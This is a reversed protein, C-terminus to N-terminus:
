LCSHAQHSCPCLRPSLLRPSWFPWHPSVGLAKEEADLGWRAESCPEREQERSSPFLLSLFVSEPAQSDPNLGPKVM